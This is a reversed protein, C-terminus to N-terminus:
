RDTENIEINVKNGKILEAVVKKYLNIYAQTSKSIWGKILDVHQGVILCGSTDEDSNGIHILIDKFKPVDQLWLMGKHFDFKKIYREHHGGFTRLKIEYTGKPIRTEHMVKGARFEDELVYCEFVDDIFLRGITFDDTSYYRELKLKM